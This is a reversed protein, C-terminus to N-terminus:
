PIFLGLFVQFFFGAKLALKRLLPTEPQRVKSNNLFNKDLVIKFEPDLAAYDIPSPDISVFRKWKKDEKWTFTIAQGNELKVLAQVPFYGEKRLFVVENRYKGPQRPIEVSEVKYVANDVGQGQKIFQEFAWSFDEEMFENFLAIFDATTPHKFKYKEAYSKFFAYMKERGILNKLSRLLLGAKAYVSGGYQSGNLFERANQGVKDVPLLSLYSLRRLEWDDIKFFGGDWSSAGDKFYEDLIEMEFFTNIGEDLWAERSEDNGILGYWYQHGFEHITVREPLKVSQPLIDLHALTILTPYEMGGSLIGKLPPDVLTIKKYPYPFIHKAFFEMAFKLSNLYREEAQGHHPALLLEITTEHPNGALKIKEECRKFRPYATWAFDHINSEEYFYTTSDGKKESKILNGCAGTIYKTPLTLSVKYDGYDSFFEANKFYQFSQWLGEASLVGIKPLWQGMFFYSGARGTRAFIDPITLKFIIKLSIKHLSAVAEPLDVHLLTKDEKNNDDPCVFRMKATLNEGGIVRMDEIEIGGFQLKDLEQQTKKHLGWERLFSSEPGRFANYYLHFLLHNVPASSKNVWTLILSGKLRNEAPFLRADIIYKVVPARANQETDIAVGTKEYPILEAPEEQKQLEQGGAPLPRMKFFSGGAGGCFSRIFDTDEVGGATHLDLIAFFLM